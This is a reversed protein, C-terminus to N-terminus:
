AEKEEEKRSLSDVLMNQKGKKYIIKFDYGLM